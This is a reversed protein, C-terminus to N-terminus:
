EEIKALMVVRRKVIDLKNTRALLIQANILPRSADVKRQNVEATFQDGDWHEM